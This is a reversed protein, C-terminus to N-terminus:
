TEIPAFISLCQRRNHVLPQVFSAYKPVSSDFEFALPSAAVAAAIASRQRSASKATQKQMGPALTHTSVPKPQQAPWRANHTSSYLSMDYQMHQDLDQVLPQLAANAKDPAPASTSLPTASEFEPETAETERDSDKEREKERELERAKDKSIRKTPKDSQQGPTRTDTKETDILQLLAYYLTQSTRFLDRTSSDCNNHKSSKGCRKRRTNARAENQCAFMLESHSLEGTCYKMVADLIRPNLRSLMAAAAAAPASQQDVSHTRSM